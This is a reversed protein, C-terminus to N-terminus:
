MLLLHSALDHQHRTAITKLINKFNGIIYALRKYRQHKQEYRMCWLRSMPGSIAILRIYPIMHHKNKLTEQPFLKLRMELYETILAKSLTVEERIVSPAFLVSCM